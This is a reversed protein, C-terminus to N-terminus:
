FRVVAERVLKLIELVFESRKLIFEVDSMSMCSM